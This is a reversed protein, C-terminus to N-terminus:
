KIFRDLTELRRRVERDVEEKVIEKVMATVLERMHAYPTQMRSAVVIKVFDESWVVWGISYSAMYFLDIYDMLVFRTAIYQYDVYPRRVVAQHVAKRIDTEKFEVGILRETTRQRGKMTLKILLDFELREKEGKVIARPLLDAECDSWESEHYNIIAKAVEYAKKEEENANEKLWEKYEELNM